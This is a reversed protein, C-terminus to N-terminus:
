FLFINTTSDYAFTTAYRTSPRPGPPNLMLWTNSPVDYSFVDNGNGIGGFLYVKQDQTNYAMTPFGINAPPLTGHPNPNQFTNATPDYIWTERGYYVQVHHATDFASGTAIAWGPKPSTHKDRGTQGIPDYWWMHYPNELENSGSSCCYYVFMKQDPDYSFTGVPHGAD